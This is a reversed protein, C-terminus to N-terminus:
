KTMLTKCSMDFILKRKSSASSQLKFKTLRFEMKNKEKKKKM